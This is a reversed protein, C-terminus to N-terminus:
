IHILKQSIGFNKELTNKSQMVKGCYFFFFFFFFFFFIGPTLNQRNMIEDNQLDHFDRVLDHYGM